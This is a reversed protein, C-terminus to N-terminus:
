REKETYECIQGLHYGDHGAIMVILQFLDLDGVYERHAPLIWAGAPLNRIQHVLELRRTQFDRLSQGPDKTAYNREVAIQGEDISPLFPEEETCIRTIRERWILEWDAMHALVERLTFREPDPRADWDAGNALLRALIQPTATLDHIL